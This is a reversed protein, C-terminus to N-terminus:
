LGVPLATCVLLCLGQICLRQRGFKRARLMVGHDVKRSDASIRGPLGCVAILAAQCVIFFHIPLQNAAQSHCHVSQKSAHVSM